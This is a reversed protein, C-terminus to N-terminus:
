NASTKKIFDINDTQIYDPNLLIAEEILPIENLTWLHIKLGKRHILDIDEKDIDEIFNYKFSIGTFNAKLARSVGLEFDGLTTLYTEIGKGNEKIYYLFDGTESEVMVQGNLNYKNTLYIIKEALKNMQSLLSIKEIGEPKWAKVDLTILKENGFESIYKFVSDLRFANFNNGLCSDLFLIQKDTLESYISNDIGGCGVIRYSHDIWVTGNRGMQIDCEIGKCNDIGYKIARLSNAEYKDGAGHHALLVTKNINIPNEPFYKVRECSHFLLFIFIISFLYKIKCIM